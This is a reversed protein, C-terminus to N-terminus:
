KLEKFCKKVQDSCKKKLEIKAPKVETVCFPHEQYQLKFHVWFNGVDAIAPQFFVTQHRRNLDILSLADLMSLYEEFEIVVIISM